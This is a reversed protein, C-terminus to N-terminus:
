QGEKGSLLLPRRHANYSMAHLAYSGNNEKQIFVNLQKEKDYLVLTDIASLKMTGLLYALLAKKEEDILPANYNKKDEYDNIFNLSALFSPDEQLYNAKKYLESRLEILDYYVKEVAYRLKKKTTDEFNKKLHHDFYSGYLAISLVIALIVVISLKYSLKLNFFRNYM